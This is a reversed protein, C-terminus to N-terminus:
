DILGDRREGGGFLRGFDTGRLRADAALRRSTESADQIVIGGM